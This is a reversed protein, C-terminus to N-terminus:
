TPEPKQLEERLRALEQRVAQRVTEDLRLQQRIFLDELRRELRQLFQETSAASGEPLSVPPTQAGRRRDGQRREGRRREVPPAYSTAVVETLVPFDDQGGAPGVGFGARKELLADIKGFIDDQEAM